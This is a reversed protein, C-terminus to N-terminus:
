TNAARKRENYRVKENQRIPTGKNLKKNSLNNCSKCVVVGSPLVKKQCGCTFKKGCYTCNM